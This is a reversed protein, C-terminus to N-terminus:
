SGTLAQSFVDIDKQNVGGDSNIDFKTLDNLNLPNKSQSKELLIALDLSNVKGDGNFDYQNNKSFSIKDAKQPKFNTLDLNGGIPIPPLNTTEDSILVQVQSILTGKKVVLTAKTNQPINFVENLDKNYVLKLPLIFNGATSSFTALEQAGPIKLFVLSEDVPNLNANLITGQFPKIFSFNLESDSQTNSATKFELAKEPYNVGNNQIKYFYKTEPKLDNISVFHSLRAQPDAQDRNDKAKSNLNQTESYLVQGTSPATTQWVITASSSFLNVAALDSIAFNPSLRSTQKFYFYFFASAALTIILAIGLLTPIKM